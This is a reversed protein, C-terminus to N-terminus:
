GFFDHNKELLKQKLDPTKKANSAPPKEASFLELVSKGQESNLFSTIALEIFLSRRGKPIRALQERIADDPYFCIRERM